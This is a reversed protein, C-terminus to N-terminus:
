GKGIGDSAVPLRRRPRSFHRCARRSLTLSACEGRPATGVGPLSYLAMKKGSLSAWIDGADESGTGLDQDSVGGSVGIEEGLSRLLAFQSSEVRTFWRQFVGTVNLFFQERERVDSLAGILMEIADLASETVAPSQVAQIASSLGQLIAVYDQASVGLQLRASTIRLLAFVQPM